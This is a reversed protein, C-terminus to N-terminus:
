QPQYSQHPILVGPVVPLQVPTSSSDLQVQLWPLDCSSGLQNLSPLFKCDEEGVCDGELAVKEAQEMQFHSHFPLGALSHCLIFRSLWCSLM